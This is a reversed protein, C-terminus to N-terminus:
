AVPVKSRPEATPASANRCTLSCIDLPTEMSVSSTVKLIMAFDSMGSASTASEPLEESVSGSPRTLTAAIDDESSSVTMSDARSRAAVSTATGAKAVARM